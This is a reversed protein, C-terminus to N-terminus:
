QVTFQDNRIRQDNPNGILSTRTVHQVEDIGDDPTLRTQFGLDRLNKEYIVTVKMGLRFLEGALLSDIFGAGGTIVVDKLQSPQLNNEGHNM